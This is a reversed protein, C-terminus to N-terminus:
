NSIDLQFIRMTVCMSTTTRQVPRVGRTTADKDHHPYTKFHVSRCQARTNTGLVSQTRDYIGVLQRDLMRDNWVSRAIAWAAKMGIGDVGTPVLSHYLLDIIINPECEFHHSERKIPASSQRSYPRQASVGAVSMVPESVACSTTPCPKRRHTHPQHANRLFKLIRTPRQPHTLSHFGVCNTHSHVCLLQLMIYSHLGWNQARKYPWSQTRKINWVLFPM